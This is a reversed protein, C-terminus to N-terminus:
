LPRKKQLFLKTGKLIKDNESLYNKKKLASIKMGHMQSISWITEGNKVVHYKVDGKNRKPQLYIRMGTKLPTGTPLDNYKYIRRPSIDFKHALDVVSENNHVIISKIRNKYIISPINNSEKIKPREVVPSNYLTDVVEKTKNPSVNLMNDYENKSIYDYKALDYKEIIDILRTPYKPNTAYGAKKLGKAWMKYETIKYSFLFEYRSKGTLFLAHDKYSEDANEYVRFCEDKSDDDKYIRKGKWDSHCKIGFHNNANIALFSGGIGSELIGQALTIAAPIKYDFRNQIATMKFREVYEQPTMSQAFVNSTSLILIIFLTFLTKQM